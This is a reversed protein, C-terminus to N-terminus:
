VEMRHIRHENNKIFQILYEKNNKEPHYFTLDLCENLAYKVKKGKLDTNKLINDGNIALDSLRYVLCKLNDNFYTEFDSVNQVLQENNVHAQADAKKIIFLSKKFM